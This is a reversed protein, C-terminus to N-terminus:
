LGLLVRLEVSVSVEGDVLIGALEDDQDFVEEGKGEVSEDEKLEGCLM